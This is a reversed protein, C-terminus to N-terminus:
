SADGAQYDGTSSAQASAKSHLHLLVGIAQMEEKLKEVTDEEFSHLAALIGAFRDKAETHAGADIVVKGTNDDVPAATPDAAPVEALTPVGPAAPTPLSAAATLEGTTPADVVQPAPEFTAGPVPPVIDTSQDAAATDSLSASTASSTTDSEPNSAVSSVGANPDAAVGGVDADTVSSTASAAPDSAAPADNGADILPQASSDVTAGEALLNPVDAAAIAIVDSQADRTSVDAFVVKTTENYFLCQGPQAAAADADSMHLPLAAFLLASIISRRLNFM